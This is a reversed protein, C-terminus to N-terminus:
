IKQVVIDRAGLEHRHVRGVRADVLRYADIELERGFAYARLVRGANGRAAIVWAPDIDQEAVARHANGVIGDIDVDPARGTRHRGAFREIMGFELPRRMSRSNSSARTNPRAPQAPSPRTSTLPRTVSSPAGIWFPVIPKKGTPPSPGVASVGIM